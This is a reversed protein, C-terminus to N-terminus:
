GFDTVSPKIRDVVHSVCSSLFSFCFSLAIVLMSSFSSFGINIDWYVSGKHSFKAISTGEENVGDKKVVDKKDDDEDVKTMKMDQMVKAKLACNLCECKRSLRSCYSSRDAM